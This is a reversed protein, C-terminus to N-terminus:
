LYSELSGICKEISIKKFERLFSTLSTKQDLIKKILAEDFNNPLVNFVNFTDIGPERIYAAVITRYWDIDQQKFGSDLMVSADNARLINGASSLQFDLDAEGQFYDDVLLYLSFKHMPNNANLSYYEYIGKGMAWQGMTM